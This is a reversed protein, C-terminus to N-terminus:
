SSCKIGLYYHMMKKKYKRKKLAYTIDLVLFCFRDGIKKIMVIDKDILKDVSLPMDGKQQYASIYTKKHMLHTISRKVLGFVLEVSKM